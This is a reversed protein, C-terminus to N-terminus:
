LTLKFPVMCNPSKKDGMQCPSTFKMFLDKSAKGKFIAPRANNVIKLYENLKQRREEQLSEEFKIQKYNPPKIPLIPTYGVIEKKFASDMSTVQSWRRFITWNSDGYFVNIEFTVFKPKGNKKQIHFAIVDFRAECYAPDVDAQLQAERQKKIQIQALQNLRENNKMFEEEKKVEDTKKREESKKVETVLNPASIEFSTPLSWTTSQPVSSTPKTSSNRYPHPVLNRQSPPPLPLSKSPIKATKIMTQNPFDWTSEGTKSNWYYISGNVERCEEWDPSLTSNSEKNSGAQNENKLSKKLTEFGETPSEWISENTESNWYYLDGEDTECQLWPSTESNSKETPSISSELLPKREEDSKRTSFCCGM